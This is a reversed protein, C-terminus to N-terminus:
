IYINSLSPGMTQLYDLETLDLRYKSFIQDIFGGDEVIKLM